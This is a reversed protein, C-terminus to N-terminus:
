NPEGAKAPVNQAPALQTIIGFAQGVPVIVVAELVVDNVNDVAKAVATQNFWSAFLHSPIPTLILIANFAIQFVSSLVMIALVAPVAGCIHTSLGKEDAGAVPSM